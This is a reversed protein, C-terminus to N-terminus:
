TGEPMSATMAMAIDSRDGYVIRYAGVVKARCRSCLAAAVPQAVTREGKALVPAVPVLGAHHCAGCEIDIEHETHPSM